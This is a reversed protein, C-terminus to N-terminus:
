ATRSTDGGPSHSGPSAPVVQSPADAHRGRARPSATANAGDLESARPAGVPSLSAAAAGRTSAGRGRRSALKSPNLKHRKLWLAAGEDSPFSPSGRARLAQRFDWISGGSRLTTFYARRRLTEEEFSVKPGTVERRHPNRLDYNKMWRAYANVRIGLRQAAERLTIRRGLAHVALRRELEPTPLPPGGMYYNPDSVAKAPLGKSLRWNAMTLTHLGLARAAAIDTPYDEYARMRRADEQKTIRTSRSLGHRQKWALLTGLAIGLRAAAEPNTKSTALVAHRRQNEQPTLRENM